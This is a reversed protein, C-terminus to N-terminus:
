YSRGLGLSHQALFNLIMERSVPAIQQLRTAFWLDALGYESSVGNGGHTQIARDLAFVATDAAAFKAINSAEGADEGNDYLWAARQTALQALKLQAYAQALPHAIAQHSGIPVSWVKRSRAYDTAASLSYRTLGNCMGAVVIREPNLGSFAGKLGEGERGIVADGSVRVNDFHVTFQKEHAVVATDLPTMTIGPTDAPVLFMTLEPKAGPTAEGTRAVVIIAAALDVGTIYYKTGALLWDAGDHVAKTKIYYSNTGADPETIAFSLRTSGDAIRPLWTRKQESSGHKALVFVIVTMLIMNLLLCGLAGMEEMMVSMTEVGQNSGGYESPIIAGILGAEALIRWLEDIGDGNRASAIFRTRGFKLMIKKVTEAVAQDSESRQVFESM